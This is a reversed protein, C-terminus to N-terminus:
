ALKRVTQEARRKFQGIQYDSFDGLGWPPPNAIVNLVREAEQLRRLQRYYTVEARQKRRSLTKAEEELRSHEENIESVRRIIILLRGESARPDRRELYLERMELGLDHRKKINERMAAEAEEVELRLAEIKSVKKGM